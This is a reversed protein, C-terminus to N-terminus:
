WVHYADVDVITNAVSTAGMSVTVVKDIIVAAFAIIAKFFVFDITLLNTAVDIITSAM